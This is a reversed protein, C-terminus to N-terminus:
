AGRIKQVDVSNLNLIPKQLYRPGFRIPETRNQNGPNSQGGDTNGPDNQNPDPNNQGPNNNGPNSQSDPSPIAANKKKNETALREVNENFDSGNFAKAERENTTHGLALRKEIANVEKVPDVTPRSAGVFDGNLWAMKIETSSSFGPAKIKSAKVMEIFWSEFVNAWFGTIFHKRRSEVSLWYFLIEARAASYSTSFSQDLVSLPMGRTGAFQTKLAKTFGDFNQNPRNHSFYKLSYGPYLTNMILATNGIAVEEIGPEPNDANSARSANSINPKIKPNKGPTVGAQSEISALIKAAASSGDLEAIYYDDLVQLEYCLQELESIGRKQDSGEINAWHTVFRRGSKPGFFPIRVPDNDFILDASRVWIAVERGMSDFELGEYISGGGKKIADLKRSDTPNVVQDPNLIQLALPSIRKPDNLYRHIAFVEGEIDGLQGIYGQFIDGDFRGTIDLEKSANTFQWLNEIQKTIKYREDESEPAGPIMEWIPKSELTLGTGFVTDKTRRVLNAAVTSTAYTQRARERLEANGYVKRIFKKKAGYRTGTTEADQRVLNRLRPHPGLIEPTEETARRERTATSKKAPM